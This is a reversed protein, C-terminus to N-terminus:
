WWSFAIPTAVNLLMSIDPARDLMVSPIVGQGAPEKELLGVSVWQEAQAAPENEAGPLVEQLVHGSL